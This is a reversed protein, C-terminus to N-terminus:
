FVLGKRTAGFLVSNGVEVQQESSVFIAGGAIIAFIVPGYAPPLTESTGLLPTLYELILNGGQLM